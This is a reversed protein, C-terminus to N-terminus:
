QRNDNKDWTYVAGNGYENIGFGARAKLSKGYAAVFGGHENIRLGALGSKGFKSYAAVYGGRQDVGFEAMVKPDEGVDVHGGHENFGLWAESFGDKGLAKVVGGYEDNGLVAKSNAGNKSWAGWAEVRGGHEDIGFAALVENDRSQVTLLGGQIIM